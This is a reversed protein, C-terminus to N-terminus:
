DGFAERGVQQIMGGVVGRAKELAGYLSGVRTEQFITYEAAGHVAAEGEELTPEPALERDARSRAESEAKGRNSALPTTAYIANRMFGTDVPANVKAEGEVYHALQTVLRDNAQDVALLVDNAYWDVRSDAM